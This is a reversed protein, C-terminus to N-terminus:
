PSYLHLLQASFLVYEEELSWPLQLMAKDLVQVPLMEPNIIKMCCIWATWGVYDSVLCCHANSIGLVFCGRRTEWLCRRWFSVDNPNNHNTACTLWDPMDVSVMPVVKEVVVQISWHITAFNRERLSEDDPSTWSFFTGRSSGHRFQSFFTTLVFLWGSWGSKPSQNVFAAFAAFNCIQGQWMAWSRCISFPQFDRHVKNGKERLNLLNKVKFGDTTPMSGIRGVFISSGISSTLPDMPWCPTWHAHRKPAVSSQGVFDELWCVICGRFNVHGWVFSWKLLFNM